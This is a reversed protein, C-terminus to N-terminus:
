INKHINNWTIKIKKKWKKKQTRDTPNLYLYSRYVRFYSNDYWIKSMKCTVNNIKKSIHCHHLYRKLDEIAILSLIASNVHFTTITCTNQSMVMSLSRSSKLSYVLYVVYVLAVIMQVKAGSSICIIKLQQESDRLHPPHWNRICYIWNPKM